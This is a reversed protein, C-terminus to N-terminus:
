NIIDIDEALFLKPRTFHEIKQKITMSLIGNTKYLDVFFLVFCCVLTITFSIMLSIELWFYGFNDLIYAIIFPSVTLGFNQISSLIGYGLSISSSPTVYRISPWLGCNIMSVGYSRLVVIVYPVAFTLSFISHAVLCIVTGLSYWFIECGTKGIIFGNILVFFIAFIPGFSIVANASTPDYGYKLEYYLPSISYYSSFPISFLFCFLCSLWFTSSFEGFSRFSVSSSSNEESSHILTDLPSRRKDFIQMVCSLLHSVLCIIISIGIVLAAVDLPALTHFKKLFQVYM